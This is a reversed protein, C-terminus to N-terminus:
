KAFHLLIEIFLFFITMEHKFINCEFYWDEYSVFADFVTVLLSFNVSSYIHTLFIAFAFFAIANGFFTGFQLAILITRRARRKRYSKDNDKAIKCYFKNWCLFSSCIFNIGSLSPSFYCM